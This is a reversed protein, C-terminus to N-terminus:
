QSTVANRPVPLMCIDGRHELLTLFIQARVILGDAQCTYCSLEHFVNYAARYHVMRLLMVDQIRQLM